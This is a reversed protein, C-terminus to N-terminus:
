VIASVVLTSERRFCFSFFLFRGGTVMREVAARKRPRDESHAGSRGSLRYFLCRRSLEANDIM